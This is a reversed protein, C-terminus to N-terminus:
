SSHVLMFVRVLKSEYYLGQKAYKNQLREEQGHMGADGNRGIVHDMGGELGERQIFILDTVGFGLQCGDRQDNPGKLPHSAETLFVVLRQPSLTGQRGGLQQFFGILASGDADAGM